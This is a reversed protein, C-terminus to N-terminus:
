DQKVAIFSAVVGAPAQGNNHPVTRIVSGVIADRQNVGDPWSPILYGIYDYVWTEGDVNGTGQFRITLPNGAIYQGALTLNWGPGGINGSVQGSVQEELVLTGAGFRLQNFDLSLDPNNVFSRYSWTGVAPNITQSAPNVVITGEMTRHFTCKYLFGSADSVETILQLASSQGPELTGTDFAAPPQRRTATHRMSAQNTWIVSDGAEITLTEPSFRGILADDHLITV